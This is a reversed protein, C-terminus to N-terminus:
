QDKRVSRALQEMEAAQADRRTARLLAAYSELAHVADGRYSGDKQRYLPMVHQFRAEASEHRREKLDCRALGALSDATERTDKGFVQERIALARTYLERATAVNGMELDADAVGTLFRGLEPHHPGAAEQIKVARQFLTRAGAHDQSELLVDGLNSLAFALDSHKPGLVKEQIRVVRELLPRAGASDGARIRLVALNNLTQAVYPHEAGLTKERIALTREWLQRAKTSDGKSFAVAGLSNVTSGFDRDDPGLVKERIAMAREMLVQARDYQGTAWYLNGLNHLSAAVTPDEPELLKERVTLARELMPRAKGYDGKQWWIGGTNDLSTAVDLNEEGLLKRRAALATEALPLAQDYLGLSDYVRSMTDMLRAQVLPQAALDRQIRAAGQDLIERATVTNGKGRMPDAIKFLDVLFASVQTATREAALAKDRERAIRASQVTMTVALAATLVFLAAVFGFVARHRAVLKRALYLTSPPRALIPQNALYREIDEALALASQYRRAPEKELAKRAITELDQDFKQKGGGLDVTVRTGALLPEDCIRQVAQPLSLNSIDYPLRGTLLEFLIVGLSYVDSRLDIEDANGRAQEPSMYALTGQIKGVETSLTAAAVDTDTIRALGFDLVKVDPTIRAVGGRSRVEVGSSIMVNSPKLDRHVVGRQHAYNVAEAIKCFLRLREEIEAGPAAGESSRSKVYDPLSLGRVLEMAFFHEGGATRGSGYIAAIGPHKLRALAQAERQFLRVAHDDVYRGGRIVKLAVARKPHQQEAEYVVGMGGEGIKRIIRFDGIVERQSLPSAYTRTSSDGEGPLSEPQDGIM